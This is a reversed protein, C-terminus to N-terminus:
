TAKWRAIIEQIKSEIDDKYIKFLEDSKAKVQAEEFIALTATEKTTISFNEM